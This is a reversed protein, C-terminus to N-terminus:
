RSSILAVPRSGRSTNSRRPDACRSDKSLSTTSVFASSPNPTVFRVLFILTVEILARALYRDREKKTLSWYFTFIEYLITYLRLKNIPGKANVCRASEGHRIRWNALVTLLARLLIQRCAIRQSRPALWTSFYVVLNHHTHLSKLTLNRLAGSFPLPELLAPLMM